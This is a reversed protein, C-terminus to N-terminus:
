STERYSFKKDAISSISISDHPELQRGHDTAPTFNTKNQSSFAITTTGMLMRMKPGVHMGLRMGMTNGHHEWSKNM